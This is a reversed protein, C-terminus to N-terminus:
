EFIEKKLKKAEKIFFDKWEQHNIKKLMRPYDKIDQAKLLQSGLQIPDIHWDFKAKSQM